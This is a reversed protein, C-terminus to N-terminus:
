RTGRLTAILPAHAISSEVVIRHVLEDLELGPWSPETNTAPGWQALRAQLDARQAAITSPHDAAFALIQRACDPEGQAELVEALCAVGALQLTPRGVSIAIGLAAALASRAASFDGHRLALRVFLLKLWGVLARNGGAEAVELARKAYTEASDHDNTQEAVEALNALILGRTSVLGHRDCIALGERLHAGASEYDHQDLYLAALNNLCLAEDAVDGLRRHQVLSQISLRLAEGYHGMAKEVLALNDLMAAANHPNISAPAQELAQEFFRKADAHEGLRLCCGGLVKLCQLKTDRDRTTRSAALAREATARADAYRDLRYELHAAASMLAALNPTAEAAQADLADRLLSLCEEFRGRHDCFSLLTPASKTLADAAQHAVSWRWANRCNEFETDV